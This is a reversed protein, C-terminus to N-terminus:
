VLSDSTRTEGADRGDTESKLHYYLGAFFSVVTAITGSLAVGWPLQGTMVGLVLGPVVVLSLVGIILVALWMWTRKPPIEPAEDPRQEGNPAPQDAERPEDAEPTVSNDRNNPHHGLTGGADQSINTGQQGNGPQSELDISEEPTVIVPAAHARDQSLARFGGVIITEARDLLHSPRLRDSGLFNAAKLHLMSFFTLALGPASAESPMNSTM